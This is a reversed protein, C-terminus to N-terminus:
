STSGQSDNTAYYREICWSVAQGLAPHRNAESANYGFRVGVEGALEKMRVVVREIPWGMSKLEDVAAWIRRRLLQADADSFASPNSALTTFSARVDHGVASDYL